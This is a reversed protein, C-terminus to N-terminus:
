ADTGEGGGEGEGGADKAGLASLEVVVAEAWLIEYATADAFRMVHVGPINRGSLYVNHASEEGATLVLVKKDVVGLKGLLEAFTKTKPKEYALADVVLFAGERARANLASKKALQRMKRPIALRYDRPHPGFVIGGHRWHPARTSGQRARGTGKQRWPKQNGGSVESRTKTDSTGQRQNSLFTIVARHLVAENVTGDFLAAPLSVAKKKAGAASFHPAEIM